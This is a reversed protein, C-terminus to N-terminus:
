FVREQSFWNFAFLRALIFILIKMFFDNNAQRTKKTVKVVADAWSIEM